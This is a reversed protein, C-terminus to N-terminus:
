EREAPKGTARGQPNARMLAEATAQRGAPPPDLAHPRYDEPLQERVWKAAQYTPTLTRADLVVDPWREVPFVMQGIIYAVVVVAAGRALGFVLGLTRDVGGLASGRVLGGIGRAILTLIILSILFVVIFSVPDIWEPSPLWNRVVDRMMPLGFFAVAISGVWAGIGLVERVLGRAFALLGSVLLFGFVVLDVWTM